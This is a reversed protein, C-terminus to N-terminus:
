TAAERKNELLALLAVYAQEAGTPGADRLRLIAQRHQHLQKHLRRILRAQRLATEKLNAIQEDQTM